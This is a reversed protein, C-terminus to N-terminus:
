HGKDSIDWIILYWRLVTNRIGIVNQANVTNVAFCHRQMVVQELFQHIRFTRKGAGLPLQNGYGYGRDVAAMVSYLMVPRRETLNQLLLFPCRVFDVTEQLLYGMLIFVCGEIFRVPHHQFINFLQRKVGSVYGGGINFQQVFRSKVVTGDM